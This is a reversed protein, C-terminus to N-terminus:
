AELFLIDGVTLEQSSVEMLTGDRLVRSHPTSLQKLADLSKQAKISQVTGLIANMTIVALIVITSELEGSVMSIIAAAILIIVLLDKFQSLFVIFPHVPKVEELENRGYTNQREAVEECRLGTEVAGLEEMVQAVDKEYMQKM